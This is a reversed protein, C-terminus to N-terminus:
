KYAVRLKVIARRDQTNPVYGCLHLNKRVISAPYAPHMETKTITFETPLGVIQDLGLVTIRDVVGADNIENAKIHVVCDGNPTPFGNGVPWDGPKCANGSCITVRIDTSPIAQKPPPVPAHALQVRVDDTNGEINAALSVASAGANPKVLFTRSSSGILHISISSKGNISGGDLGLELQGSGKGHQPIWDMRLAFVNPSVNRAVLIVSGGSKAKCQGWKEVQADTLYRRHIARADSVNMSFNEHTLREQIKEQFQEKYDSDEYEASFLKYSADASRQDKTLSKLREYEDSANLKMYAQMMSYDNRTQEDTPVLVASCDDAASAQLSATVLLTSALAAIMTRM